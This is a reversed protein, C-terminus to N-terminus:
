LSKICRVSLGSSAGITGRSYGSSTIEIAEARHYPLFNGAYYEHTKSWYRGITGVDRLQTGSVGNEQRYGSTPLKLFSSFATTTNTIETENILDTISPLEFGSPCIDNTGGNGWSSARETGDSDATTWDYVNDGLPDSRVYFNGHGPTLTTARTTTLSSTRVQHGDKARGWQYLDGHCDSDNATTCIRTAGLNRDLWVRGTIPSTVTLYTLGDFNITDSDLRIRQQREVWDLRTLDMQASPRFAQQDFVFRTPKDDTLPLQLKLKAYSRRDIRDNDEQGLELSTAASLQLELGLTNGKIDDATVQDWFYYSGKVKAWPTYPMQGSFNLDYGSSVREVRDDITKDGSLPHYYNTSLQFNSRQYELGLSARQHKSRTEYDVFLNIGAISQGAELLRQGIGLNLTSRREGQHYASFVSGQVYNLQTMNPELSELPQISDLSYRVKQTEIDEIVLRSHGEGFHKLWQNAQTNLQQEVQQTVQDTM